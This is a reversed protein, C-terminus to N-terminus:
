PNFDVKAYPWGYFPVGLSDEGLPVKGLIPGKAEEEDDDSDIIVVDNSVVKGPPRIVESPEGLEKQESATYGYRKVAAEM